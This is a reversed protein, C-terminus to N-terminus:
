CALLHTCNGLSNISQHMKVISKASLFNIFIPRYDAFAKLTTRQIIVEVRYMFINAFKESNGRVNIILPCKETLPLRLEIIVFIRNCTLNDNIM